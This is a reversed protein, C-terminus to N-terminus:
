AASVATPKKERPKDHYKHLKFYYRQMLLENHTYGPKAQFCRREDNFTVYKEWRPLALDVLDRIIGYADRHKM